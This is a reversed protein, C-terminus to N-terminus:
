VREYCISEPQAPTRHTRTQTHTFNFCTWVICRRENRHTVYVLSTNYVTIRGRDGPTLPTTRERAHPNVTVTCHFRKRAPARTGSRVCLVGIHTRDTMMSPTRGASRGSM